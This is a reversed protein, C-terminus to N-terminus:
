CGMSLSHKTSCWKGTLFSRIDLQPKWSKTAMATKVAVASFFKVRYDTYSGKLYNYARELHSKPQKAPTLLALERLRLEYTGRTMKIAKHQVGMLM